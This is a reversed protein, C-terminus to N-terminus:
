TTAPANDGNLLSRAPKTVSDDRWDADFEDRIRKARDKKLITAHPMLARHTEGCRSQITETESYLELGKTRGDHEIVLYYRWPDGAVRCRVEIGCTVMGRLCALNKDDQPDVSCIVKVDVHRKTAACLADLIRDYWKMGLNYRAFCTVPSYLRVSGSAENILNIKTGYIRRYGRITGRGSQFYRLMQWFDPIRDLFTVILGVIGIATNFASYSTGTLLPYLLAGAVIITGVSRLYHKADYLRGPVSSVSGNEDPM